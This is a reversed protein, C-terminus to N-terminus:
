IGNLPARMFKWWCEGYKHSAKWIIALPGGGRVPVVSQPAVSYRFNHLRSVSASIGGKLTRGKQKESPREHRSSLRRGSGKTDSGDLPFHVMPKPRSSPPPNSVTSLFTNETCRCLWHCLGNGFPPHTSLSSRRRYSSFNLLIFGLVPPASVYCGKAKVVRAMSAPYQVIISLKGRVVGHM